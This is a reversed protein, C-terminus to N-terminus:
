KVLELDVELHGSGDPRKRPYIGKVEFVRDDPDKLRDMKKIDLENTVFRYDVFYSDREARVRVDGSVPWLKGSIDSHKVTWNYTVGGAGDSSPAKEEIVHGSVFFREIM